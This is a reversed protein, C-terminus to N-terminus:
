CWRAISTTCQAADFIVLQMVLAAITWDYELWCFLVSGLFMCLICVYDFMHLRGFPHKSTLSAPPGYSPCCRSGHKVTGAAFSCSGLSCPSVESVWSCDHISSGSCTLTKCFKTWWHLGLASGITFSQMQWLCSCGWNNNGAGNAAWLMPSLSSTAITCWHEILQAM